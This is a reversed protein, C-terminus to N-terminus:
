QSFCILIKFLFNYVFNYHDLIPESSESIFTEEFLQKFFVQYFAFLYHVGIKRLHLLLSSHHHKLCVFSFLLLLGLVISQTAELLSFNLLFLVHLIDLSSCRDTFHFNNHILQSQLKILFFEKTPECKHLLAM